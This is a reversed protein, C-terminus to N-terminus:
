IGLNRVVDINYQFAESGHPSNLGFIPVTTEHLSGHSRVSVPVREADFEGFVVDAGGLVFFDGTRDRPFRFLAAAEQNGHVEQVEPVSALRERVLERTSDDRCFLFAAGSLNDHHAVYKDRIIPLFTVAGAPAGVAKVLDLGLTKARMGHDATVYVERDPDDDIIQGLVEDLDALHRQAEEEDPAYKHQVYDTTSLYMLDPDSSRLVERAAKFLWVNVDASYIHGPQGLRDVLFAPPEEGAYVAGAGSGLLRLLKAKATLMVTSMGNAEARALVTPVRVDSASEVYDGEGTARDFWYNSTIGHEEPFAGTLISTNNVNTVSPMVSKGLTGFGAAAVADLTPTSSTALYEPDCGDICVVLVKRRM